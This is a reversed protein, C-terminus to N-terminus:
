FYIVQQGWRASGAMRRDRPPYPRGDHDPIVPLRRRSYTVYWLPRGSKVKEPPNRIESM